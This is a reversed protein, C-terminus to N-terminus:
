RSRASARRALRFRGGDHVIARGRENQDDTMKNASLLFVFDDNRAAFEDLDTASKPDAFYEFRAARFQAFDAGGVFRRECIIRARDAFLGRENQFHM